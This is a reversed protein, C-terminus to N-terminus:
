MFQPFASSQEWSEKGSEYLLSLAALSGEWPQSSSWNLHFAQINKYIMTMYMHIKVLFYLFSCVVRSASNFSIHIKISALTEM